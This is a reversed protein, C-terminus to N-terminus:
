HKDGFGFERYTNPMISQNSFAFTYTASWTEFDADGNKLPEIHVCRIMYIADRTLTFYIQGSDDTGLKHPYVNGSETKVYIYANARKLPEGKYKILVTVDDGYNKKYPNQKLIIEFDSKLEKDYVKGGNDDVSVLTKLYYHTKEAFNLKNGSQAKDALDEYGQDKLYSLFEERPVDNIEPKTNMAILALGSNDMTYNLVPAASDKVMTTLDTGKSGEYLIFSATNLSNYKVEGDKNFNDGTLLHLDLKDGKHLYFSQPMLFHDPAFSSLGFLIFMISLIVYFHKM